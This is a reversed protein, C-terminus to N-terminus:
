KKKNRKTKRPKKLKQPVCKLGKLKCRICKQGKVKNCACKALACQKCSQNYNKSRDKGPHCNLGLRICRNCKKNGKKIIFAKKALQCHICAMKRNRRNKKTKRRVM